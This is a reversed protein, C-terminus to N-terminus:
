NISHQISASQKDNHESNNSASSEIADQNVVAQEFQISSSNSSLEDSFRKYFDRLMVNNETWGDLDVRFELNSYLDKFLNEIGEESWQQEPSLAIKNPMGDINVGYVMHHMSLQMAAIEFEEMGETAKDWADKVHQPSNVPPFHITKALGVEVLGDNNIDVM